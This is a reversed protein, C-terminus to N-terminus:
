STYGSVYVYFPLMTRVATPVGFLLLKHLKGAWPLFSQYIISCSVTSM